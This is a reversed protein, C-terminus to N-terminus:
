RKGGLIENLWRVLLPNDAWIMCLSGAVADCMREENDTDELAWMDYVAHFIEHLLTEAAVPAPLEPDLDIELRERSHSGWRDDAVAQRRDLLGVTYYCHGVRIRKPLTKHWDKM